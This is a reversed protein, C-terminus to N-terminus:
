LWVKVLTRYAERFVATQDTVSCLVHTIVVVDVSEDSVHQKIDEGRAVVIKEFIVHPFKKRNANLFVQFSPNCDVSIVRCNPPYHMLNPGEGTGIELIRIANEERLKPDASKVKSLDEFLRKRLEDFASLYQPKIYYTLFFSFWIQNLKKSVKIAFGIIIILSIIVIVTYKLIFLFVCFINCVLSEM